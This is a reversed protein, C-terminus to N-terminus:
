LFKLWIIEGYCCIADRHFTDERYKCARQVDRHGWSLFSVCYKTQSSSAPSPKVVFFCTSLPSFFPRVSFGCHISCLQVTICNIWVNLRRTPHLLRNSYLTLAMLNLHSTLFLQHLGRVRQLYTNPQIILHSINLCNCTWMCKHDPSAPFPQSPITLNSM